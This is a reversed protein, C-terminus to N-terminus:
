PAMKKLPSMHQLPSSPPLVKRLPCHSCEPQPGCFHKGAQVILAHYENYISIEAPVNQQFYQQLAEYDRDKDLLEHRHVIRRTYADIVFVPRHLAYLLISDATEPGVGNITLLEARLNITPIQSLPVANADMHQAYWAMVRRLRQTKIRFYGSPRLLQELEGIPLALIAVADLCHQQALNGIAKEVNRWNTNQTLVAGIIVEVTSQAPWWHPNGFHGKLLHYYHMAVNAPPSKDGSRKAM